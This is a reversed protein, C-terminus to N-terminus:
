LSSFQLSIAELEQKPWPCCAMIERASPKAHLRRKGRPTWKFHKVANTVYIRSREIGAQASLRDFLKGAPGFFPAAAVNRQLPLAIQRSTTGIHGVKIALAARIGPIEHPRRDPM